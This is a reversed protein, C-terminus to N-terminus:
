SADKGTVLYEVRDCAEAVSRVQIEWEETTLTGSPVWSEGILRGRRDITFGVLESVRNRRWAMLLPENFQNMASPTAIVTWLRISDSKSQDIYIMQRRQDGFTVVISAEDAKIGPKNSLHRWEAAM